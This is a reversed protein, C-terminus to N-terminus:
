SVGGVQIQDVCDKLHCTHSTPFPPFKPLAGLDSREGSESDSMVFEFSRSCTCSEFTSEEPGINRVIASQCRVIMYIAQQCREVRSLTPARQNDFSLKRKVVLRQLSWKWTLVM